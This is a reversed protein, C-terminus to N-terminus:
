WFLTWGFPMRNKDVHATTCVLSKLQVFGLDIGYFSILMMRLKFRKMFCFTSHLSLGLRFCLQVTDETCEASVKRKSYLGSRM